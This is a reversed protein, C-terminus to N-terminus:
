LIDTAGNNRFVAEANGLRSLDPGGDKELLSASDSTSVAVLTTGAKLAERCQDLHNHEVDLAILARNASSDEVTLASATLYAATAFPVAGASSIGGYPTGVAIVSAGALANQRMAGNDLGGDADHHLTEVLEQLEDVHVGSESEVMRSHFRDKAIVRIDSETFGEQLLQQIAATAQAETQFFGIKSAM